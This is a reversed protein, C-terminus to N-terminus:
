RLSMYSESALVAGSNCFARQYRQLCVRCKIEIHPYDRVNFHHKTDSAQKCLVKCSNDKPWVTTSRLRQLVKRSNPLHQGAQGCRSRRRDIQNKDRLYDAFGNKSRFVTVTKDHVGCRRSRVNHMSGRKGAEPISSGILTPAPHAPRRWSLSMTALPRQTQTQLHRSQKKHNQPPDVRKLAVRKLKTLSQVSKTGIVRHTLGPVFEWRWNGSSSTWNRKFQRAVERHGQGTWVM